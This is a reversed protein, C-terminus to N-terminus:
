RSPPGNAPPISYRVPARPPAAVPVWQQPYPKWHALVQETTDEGAGPPNDLTKAETCALGCDCGPLEVGAGSEGEGPGHVGSAAGDDSAGHAGHSHVPCPYLGAGQAMGALLLVVPAGLTLAGFLRRRWGHLKSDRTAYVQNGRRGCM